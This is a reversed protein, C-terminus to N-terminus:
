NGQTSKVSVYMKVGAVEVRDGDKLDTQGKVVSDNVVVKKGDQVASIYYGDGRRGILAAVKAFWGHLKVTAGEESGIVTLQHSLQYEHRDTRGAVVKLTARVSCRDPSQQPKQGKLVMTQDAEGASSWAPVMDSKVVDQFILRHNGIMIVDTDQLQYRDVPNNNVLTGNTSHLDEVFFVSQIKVIKAHHGSVSPDEISLDNDQKRGIMLQSETLEVERIVTGQYKVILKPAHTMIDPM